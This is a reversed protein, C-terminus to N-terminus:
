FAEQSQVPEPQDQPNDKWLAAIFDAIKEIEHPKFCKYGELVDHKDCLKDCVVAKISGHKFRELEEPENLVVIRDKGARNFGETIVLDYDKLYKGSIADIDDEEEKIFVMRRPSAVVVDAGSQTIKWSDKEERDIDIDRVTHKVIVVQLGKEKLLPVIRTILTTKGTNSNGLVSLIMSM